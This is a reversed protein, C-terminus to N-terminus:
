SDVCDDGGLTTAGFWPGALLVYLTMVRGLTQGMRAVQRSGVTDLSDAVVAEVTHVLSIPAVHSVQVGQVPAIRANAHVQAATWRDATVM